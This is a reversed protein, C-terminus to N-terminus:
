KPITHWFGCNAQPLQRLTGAPAAQRTAAAAIIAGISRERSDLQEGISIIRLAVLLTSDQRVALEVSVRARFAEKSWPASNRM